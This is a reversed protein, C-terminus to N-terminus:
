HTQSLFFRSLYRALPHKYSKANKLAAIDPFRDERATGISRFVIEKSGSPITTARTLVTLAFNVTVAGEHFLYLPWLDLTGGALDVRCSATATIKKTM